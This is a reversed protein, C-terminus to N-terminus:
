VNVLMNKKKENKKGLCINRKGFHVFLNYM